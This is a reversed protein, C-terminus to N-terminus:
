LANEVLKEAGAVRVEGSLLKPLLYDRMAALTRSERDRQDTMSEIITTVFQQFEKQVIRPPVLLRTDLLHGVSISQGERSSSSLLRLYFPMRERVYREVYDSLVVSEDIAFVKYVPSVAGISDRMLGFNLIQRSLGFILDNRRIM